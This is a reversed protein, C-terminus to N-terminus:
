AQLIPAPFELLTPYEIRAAGPPVVDGFGIDIQMPIRAGALNARFQGRVGEYDADEKIPAAKVSTADFVAGDPEPEM